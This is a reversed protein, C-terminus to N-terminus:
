SAHRRTMAAAELADAECSADYCYLRGDQGVNAEIRKGSRDHPFPQGCGSCCSPGGNMIWHSM